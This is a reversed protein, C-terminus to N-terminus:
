GSGTIQDIIGSVDDLPIRRPAAPPPEGHAPAHVAAGQPLATLSERVRGAVERAIEMTVSRPIEVAPAKRAEKAAASERINERLLGLIEQIRAHVEPSESAPAAPGPAAPPKKRGPGGKRFLASLGAASFAEELDEPRMSRKLEAVEDLLASWERSVEGLLGRIGAIEERARAREAPGWHRAEGGISGGAPEATRAPAAALPGRPSPDHYRLICDALSFPMTVGHLM